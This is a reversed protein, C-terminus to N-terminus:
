AFRPIAKGARIARIIEDPERPCDLEIWARGCGAETHSDDAAVKPYAIREDNWVPTYFGKSSIEVADIPFKQAVADLVRCLDDFPLDYEAPHNFVHLTEREGEIRNVHVYGREHITLEVGPLILLSDTSPPLLSRWDPRQLYDHDTFAVVAFGLKAYRAAIEAPKLRGDSLTSHTHLAIKLPPM